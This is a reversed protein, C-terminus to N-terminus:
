YALLIPCESERPLPCLLEMGLVRESRVKHMEENPQDQNM